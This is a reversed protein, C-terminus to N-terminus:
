GAVQLELELRVQFRRDVAEQVREILAFVDAAKANGNNIIFNAHARSIQAGGIRLGKLGCREIMWGAAQGQAPNKFVCGASPASWDQTRKKFAWLRKVREGIAQPDDSKLRLTAKLVIQGNLRSSRYGFGLADPSLLRIQGARDMVTVSSILDSFSHVKGEEDHTGANMRIAGGVRGPVGALFEVGSLSEECSARVLWELPLGAGVKLGEPTRQCSMFGRSALHVVLGRIGEDAVLLNAGGGIVTVRLNGEHAIQLLRRLEEPEQPQAWVQAPGGIHFTTHLRMPEEFRVRGGTASILEQCVTGPVTPPKQVLYRQRSKYRTGNQGAKLRELLRGALSGVSGAGLFLVLDGSRAEKSLYRLTEEGSALRVQRKGKARLAKVILDSEVGAIPDESAAYIPLLVLDDALSLASVFQRLLYQTRSYRHPQFVCRIRKGPFSRAAKLTAAIEAPHHGYDEVVLIGSVTGQIQFRRKVGSFNKLVEQTVSFDIKLAQGLALISLSNVLNHIGPIKLTVTGLPRGHLIAQCRSGGPTLVTEEARVDSQNGLGYTLRKRRGASGIGVVKPDDACGIFVGGPPIRKAFATYNELIEAPNRFYDLHEHDINTLIVVQPSLWLFSADSEDAEVVAYRGSGTRANSGLSELEAGLVVTPDFRAQILLEAALCATTSKGHAGTVAIVRKNRLIRALMQGRHLVPIRSNRAEILEPNQPAISSSYVVADAGRVHSAKHGLYVKGGQRQIEKLLPSESVDSGSVKNGEALLVQAIASMGIGGMGVLHVRM